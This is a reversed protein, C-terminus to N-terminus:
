GINLRLRHKQYLHDYLVALSRDRDDEHLRESWGDFQNGFEDPEFGLLEKFRDSYMVEGTLVNWDWMGDGAGRWGLKMAEESEFLKRQTTKLLHVFVATIWIAIIALLRNIAESERDAVFEITSVYGVFVLASAVGAFVFAVKPRYFLLSCFVLPVYSVGASLGGAYIMDFLLVGFCLLAPFWLPVSSFAPARLRWSLNLIGISLLVFGSSTHLPMRTLEGWSYGREEGVVYGILALVALGLVLLGLVETALRTANKDPFRLLTLLAAASLLFCFSTNPAMRGPNATPKNIYGEVFLEDLGFNVGFLYQYFTAFGILGAIGAALMGLSQWGATLALLAIGALTFCLAANYQM